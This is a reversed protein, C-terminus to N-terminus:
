AAERPALDEPETLWTPRFYEIHTSGCRDCCSPQGNEGEIRECRAECDNCYWFGNTFVQLLNSKIARALHRERTRDAQCDRRSAAPLVSQYTKMTLGKPQGPADTGGAFQNPLLGNGFIM